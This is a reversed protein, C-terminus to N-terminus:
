SFNLYFLVNLTHGICQGNSNSFWCFVVYPFAIRYEIELRIHMKFSYFDFVDNVTMLSENSFHLFQFITGFHSKSSAVFTSFRKQKTTQDETETFFSFSSSFFCIVWSITIIQWKLDSFSFGFFDNRTLSISYFPHDFLSIIM